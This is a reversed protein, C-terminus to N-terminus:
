LHHFPSALPQVGLKVTKMLVYNKEMCIHGSLKFLRRIQIAGEVMSQMQRFFNINNSCVYMRISCYDLQSHSHYAVIELM